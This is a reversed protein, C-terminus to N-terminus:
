GGAPPSNTENPLWSFGGDFTATLVANSSCDLAVPFYSTEALARPGTM